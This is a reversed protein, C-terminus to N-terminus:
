ITGSGRLFTRIGRRLEAEDGATAILTALAAAKRAAAIAREETGHLVEFTEIRERAVAILWDAWECNDQGFDDPCTFHGDVASAYFGMQKLFDLLPAIGAPVDEQYHSEEGRLTAVKKLLTQGYAAFIAQKHKHSHLDLEKVLIKWELPSRAARAAANALLVVKGIEEMALIGLSIARGPRKERLTEADELLSRANVFTKHMGRGIEDVSVTGTTLRKKLERADM